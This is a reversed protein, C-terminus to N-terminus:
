IQIGQDKSKKMENQKDLQRQYEKLKDSISKNKMELNEKNKESEKVAAYSETLKQQLESNSKRLNEVEKQLERLGINEKLLQKNEDSLKKIDEDQRVVSEEIIKALRVVDGSSGSSGQRRHMDAILDKLDGKIETHEKSLDTKTNSLNAKLNEHEKSLHITNNNTNANVNNSFSSMCNSVKEYVKEPMKSFYKKNVWVNTIGTAILSSAIGLLSSWFLNMCSMGWIIFIPLNIRTNIFNIYSYRDM